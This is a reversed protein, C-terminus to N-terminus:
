FRYFYISTNLQLQAGHHSSQNAQSQRRDETKRQLEVAHQPHASGAAEVRQGAGTQTFPLQVVAVLVLDEAPVGLSSQSLADGVGDPDPRFCM